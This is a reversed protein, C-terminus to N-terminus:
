FAAVGNFGADASFGGTVGLNNLSGDQNIGFISITGTGSDLTYLFKSDASVAIDLNKSGSANTGVVTGSLPTLGGTTSVAFGSITGSGPNSTYVWRGDPTAVDWCTANALTPVDATISALTGNSAIAYSAITSANVGGAPGTEAVLAAGNPSFTVAFTGPDVGQNVVIPGLTGDGQVHFVDINNTARETVLLFQGDPSFALSAAESNNTTLFRISDPIQRLRGTEGLRFGVVNSSGGVNIVYVLNGHQSVANPEAGGSLVKDVLTLNSGHVRFVSIEGSGGNVAFLLSHDRSLTLSGQSELPDTVGGTGRGGTAFKDGQQLSGDASRRFSIVENRDAANTMVFVAGSQDTHSIQATSRIAGGSVALAVPLLTRFVRQMPGSEMM